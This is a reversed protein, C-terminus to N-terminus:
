KERSGAELCELLKVQLDQIYGMSQKEADRRGMNYHFDPDEAKPATRCGTLMMGVVTGVLLIVAMYAADSMVRM